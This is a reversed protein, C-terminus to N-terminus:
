LASGERLRSPSKFRRHRKRCHYRWRSLTTFAAVMAATIAIKLMASQPQTGKACMKRQGEYSQYTCDSARFSNYAAACASLDCKPQDTTPQLGDDTKVVVPESQQLRPEAAAVFRKWIEAPLSGGTVRNMPTRDDNGVWVGVVLNDTFGVFWADRYDQSTGTKGAVTEGNLAAGRGTGHEVVEQLLRTLQQRNPLAQANTSPAGLSRLGTGEAGLPRLVGRSLM